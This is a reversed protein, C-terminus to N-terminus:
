TGAIEPSKLFQEIDDDTIKSLDPELTEPNVPLEQISAYLAEESIGEATPQGTSNRYSKLKSQTSHKWSPDKREALSKSKKAFVVNKTESKQSKELRKNLSHASPTRLYEPVDAKMYEMSEKQLQLQRECADQMDETNELIDTKNQEFDGKAQKASDKIGPIMDYMFVIVANWAKGQIDRQNKLLMAIHLRRLLMAEFLTFVNFFYWPAVLATSQSPQKSDPPTSAPKMQAPVSHLTKNVEKVYDWFNWISKSQEGKKFLKMKIEYVEMEIKHIENYYRQRQRAGEERLNRLEKRTEGIKQDLKVYSSHSQRQGM